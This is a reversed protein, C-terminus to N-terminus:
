SPSILQAFIHCLYHAYPLQCRTRLGDLVTDEIDYILFDVVDFVSHSVLADLLWPQIHTTAERYGMTPLLTRRMLEYLFKAEQTFDTPSRRSGYTLLPRFLAAVHTIGPAVGGHPRRRSDSTGYCLIHLWTTSERFGFLERIQATYLTIDEREFWFRM